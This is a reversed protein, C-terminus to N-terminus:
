YRTCPGAGFLEKLCTAKSNSFCEDRCRRILEMTKQREEGGNEFLENSRCAIRHRCSQMEQGVQEVHHNRLAECRMSWGEFIQVEQRCDLLRMVFGIVYWLNGSGHLCITPKRLNLRDPSLYQLLQQCHQSRIRIRPDSTQHCLYQPYECVILSQPPCIPRPLSLCKLSHDSHQFSFQIRISRAGGWDLINCTRM